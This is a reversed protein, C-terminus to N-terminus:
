YAGTKYISPRPMTKIPRSTIFKPSITFEPDKITKFSKNKTIVTFDTMLSKKLKLETDQM